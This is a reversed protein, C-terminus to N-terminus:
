GTEVMNWTRDNWTKLIKRVLAASLRPFSVTFHPEPFDYAVSDRQSSIFEIFDLMCDCPVEAYPIGTDKSVLVNLEHHM